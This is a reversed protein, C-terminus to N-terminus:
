AFSTVASDPLPSSLIVGVFLSFVPKSLGCLIFSSHLVRQFESWTFLLERRLLPKLAIKFFGKSRVPLKSAM